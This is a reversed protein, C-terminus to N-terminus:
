RRPNGLLLTAIFSCLTKLQPKKLMMDIAASSLSLLLMHKVLSAAENFVWSACDSSQVGFFADHGLCCPKGPELRQLDQM